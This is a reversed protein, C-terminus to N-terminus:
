LSELLDSRNSIIGDVGDNILRQMVSIDDVTWAFVQLGHAHLRQIRSANLLPHEWTVAYTDLTEVFSNFHSDELLANSSHGLSLSLRLQPDLTRFLHRSAEGAGPVLKAEISLPALAQVVQEEIGNGECKMDAMISCRGQSWAVLEDLTPVGEGAGLDLSHLQTSPCQAIEYHHGQMDTVHPDHSLVLVGDAAQRIDCEVMTCGREVARAFGQM